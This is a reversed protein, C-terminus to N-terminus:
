TEDVGGVVGGHRDNPAEIQLVHLPALELAAVHEAVRVVMQAACFEADVLAGHDEGDHRFGQAGGGEGTRM